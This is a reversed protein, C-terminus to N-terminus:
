SNCEINCWELPSCYISFCLLSMWRKVMLRALLTYTGSIPVVRFSWIAKLADKICAVGYLDWFGEKLAQDWLVLSALIIKSGDGVEFITNYSSFV